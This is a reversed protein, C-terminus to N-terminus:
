DEFEIKGGLIKGYRVKYEVTEDRFKFRPYDVSDFDNDQPVWCNKDDNELFKGVKGTEFDFVAKKYLPKPARTDGEPEVYKYWQYLATLVVFPKGNVFTSAVDVRFLNWTGSLTKPIQKGIHGYDWTKGEISSLFSAENVTNEYEKEHYKREDNYTVIGTKLNALGVWPKWFKVKNTEKLKMDEFSFAVPRGKTTYPDEFKNIKSVNSQEILLLEFDDLFVPYYRCGIIKQSGDGLAYKIQSRPENILTYKETKINCIYYWNTIIRSVETDDLKLNSIGNGMNEESIFEMETRFEFFVWELNDSIGYMKTYNKYFDLRKGVSKDVVSDTFDDRFDPMPLECFVIKDEGKQSMSAIVIKSSDGLNHALYYERKSFDEMFLKMEFELNEEQQIIVVVKGDKPSPMAHKLTFSLGTPDGKFPILKGDPTKMTIGLLKVDSKAVIDQEKFDSRNYTFTVNPKSIVEIETEFTTSKSGDKPTAVIAIKHKGNPLPQSDPTPQTITFTDEWENNKPESKSAQMKNNFAISVTKMEEDFAGALRIQSDQYMKQSSLYVTGKEFEVKQWTSYKENEMKNGSCSALLITMSLACATIRDRM